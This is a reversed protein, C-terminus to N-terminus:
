RADRALHGTVRKSFVDLAISELGSQDWTNSARAFWGASQGAKFGSGISLATGAIGFACRLLAQAATTRLVAQIATAMSGDLEGQKGMQMLQSDM